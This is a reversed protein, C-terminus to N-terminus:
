TQYTPSTAKVLINVVKSKLQSYFAASRFRFWDQNHQAQEVGSAAFFGSKAAEPTSCVCCLWTERHAQFFFACLSV